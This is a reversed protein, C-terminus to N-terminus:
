RNIFQQINVSQYTDTSLSRMLNSGDKVPKVAQTSISIHEKGIRYTLTQRGTEANTYEGAALKELTKYQIHPKVAMNLTSYSAKTYRRKTKDIATIAKPTAEIRFLEIGLIPRVSIIVLSDRTAQLSCNVTYSKDGTEVTTMVNDTRITHWSPQTQVLSKKSACSSFLASCCIFLIYLYYKGTRM